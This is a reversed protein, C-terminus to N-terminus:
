EELRGLISEMSNSGTLRGKHDEQNQKLTETVLNLKAQSSIEIAEIKSQLQTSQQMSIQHNTTMEQQIKEIQTQTDLKVQGKLSHVLDEM